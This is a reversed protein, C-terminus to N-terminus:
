KSKQSKALIKKAIEPFDGDFTTYEALVLTGRAVLAYIIM